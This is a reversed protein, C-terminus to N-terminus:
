MTPIISQNLPPQHKVLVGKIALPKLQPNIIVDSVSKLIGQNVCEDIGSALYPPGKHFDSDSSISTIAIKGKTGHDAINLKSRVHYINNLSCHQLINAVRKRQFPALKVLEKNLWFSTVVSDTILARFIKVDFTNAVKDLTTACHSLSDLEQCPVSSTSSLQSKAQVLTVHSTGDQLKRLLYIIQIKGHKGYDSFGILTAEAYPNDPPYTCRPFYM